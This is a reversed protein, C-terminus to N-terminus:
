VYMCACFCVYVCLCVFMCMRVRVCIYMYIYVKRNKAMIIGQTKADKTLYRGGENM